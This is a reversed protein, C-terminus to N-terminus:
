APPAPYAGRTRLWSGLPGAARRFPRRARFKLSPTIRVTRNCFGANYRGVSGNEGAAHALLASHNGSRSRAASVMARHRQLRAEAGSGRAAPPAAARPEHSANRVIASSAHDRTVEHEGLPLDIRHHLTQGFAADDLDIPQAANADTRGFPTKRLILAAHLTAGLNVADGHM